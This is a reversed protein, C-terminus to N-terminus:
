KQEREREGRLQVRRAIALLSHYIHLSKRAFIEGLHGRLIARRNIAFFSVIVLGRKYGHVAKQKFRDNSRLLVYTLARPLDRADKHKM